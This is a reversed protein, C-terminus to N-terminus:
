KRGDNVNVQTEYSCIISLQKGEGELNLLGVCQQEKVIEAISNRGLM